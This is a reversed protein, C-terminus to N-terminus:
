LMGVSMGFFVAALAGGLGVAAYVLSNIFRTTPNIISSFFTSKLSYKRLQENIEDFKEINEQEHSYAAVTKQNNIMEDIFATQEGRIKAQMSFMHYIRGAIFKATLLSLPTIVVVILAIAPNLMLMFVLTLIVTMVGSFLQAFGMILGDSLQDVDAIVRSVMDGTKHSDIYSLPLQEIKAMADSRIDRIVRYATKNFLLNMIYQLVGTMVAVTLGQILIPTMRGLVAAMSEPRFGGAAVCDIANGILIPLYMTLAASVASLALATIIFRKYKLIRRIIEKVAARNTKSQKEKM